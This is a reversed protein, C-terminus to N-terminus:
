VGRAPVPRVGPGPIASWCTCRTRSPRAAASGPATRTGRTARRRRVPDDGRIEPGQNEAAPSSALLEEFEIQTRVRPDEGYLYEKPVQPTAGTAVIVGRAWRRTRPGNGSALETRFNRRVGLRGPHDQGPPRHDARRSRGPRNLERLYARHRGRGAHPPAESPQRGTTAEREVVHVPLGAAALDLAATLGAAGGGIVLASHNVKLRSQRLPELRAAKAAALRVLDRAKATAKEQEHQHVWACHERINPSSSCTLNLGSSELTGQFLPKTRARRAPPWWWARSGSKRSPRPSPRRRTRPSAFLFEQAHSSKSPRRRVPGGRAADVTSAINIGCRCV